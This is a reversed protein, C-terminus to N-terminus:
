KLHNIDTIYEELNITTDSDLLDGTVSKLHKLFNSTNVDGM